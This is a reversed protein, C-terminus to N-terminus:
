WMKLPVMRGAVVAYGKEMDLYRVLGNRLMTFTVASLNVEVEKEGYVTLDLKLRKSEGPKM